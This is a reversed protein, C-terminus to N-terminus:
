PADPSATGVGRRADYRRGFSVVAQELAAVIAARGTTGTIVREDGAHTVFGIEVLAAPMQVGSLVVFMAQKVGRSKIPVEGLRNQVSRAFHSSEDLHETAILDGLLAIFPDSLAEIAAAEEAFASNERQAVGAAGADSAELALFYTESGHISAQRAANAHISVFLDGRADNAIATREELPVRVDADRTMVVNLGADRLKAALNRAVALAVDKELSGAPGKAGTDSGGHGADIVVTDFREPAPTGASSAVV